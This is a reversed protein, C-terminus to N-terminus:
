TQPTDQEGVIAKLAVYALAVAVSFFTMELAPFVLFLPVTERKLLRALAKASLQLLGISLLIVFIWFVARLLGRLRCLWSVFDSWKGGLLLNREKPLPIFHSRYILLIISVLLQDFFAISWSIEM